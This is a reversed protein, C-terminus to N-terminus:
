LRISLGGGGVSAGGKRSLCHILLSISSPSTSMDYPEILIFKIQSFYQSNSTVLNTFYCMKGYNKLLVYKAKCLCSKISTCLVLKITKENKEETIEFLLLSSRILWQAYQRTDLWRFSASLHLCESDKPRWLQGFRIFTYRDPSYLLVSHRM